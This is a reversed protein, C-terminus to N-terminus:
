YDADMEFCGKVLALMESPRLIDRVGCVRKLQPAYELIRKDCTVFYASYKHAEFIHKADAEYNKRQGNGILIDEIRQLTRKEEATLPTENTYIGEQAMKKKFPPTNPQEVENMVSWPTELLIKGKDRLHILEKTASDEEPTSKPPEFACSDLFVTFPLNTTSMLSGTKM